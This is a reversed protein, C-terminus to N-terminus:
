LSSSSTSRTSGKTCAAPCRPAGATRPPPSWRAPAPRPAPPPPPPAASSPPSPPPRWPPCPLLCCDIRKPTYIALHRSSSWASRLPVSPYPPCVARRKAGVARCASCCSIALKPLSRSLRMLAALSLTPHLPARCPASIPGTGGRIAKSVSANAKVQLRTQVHM